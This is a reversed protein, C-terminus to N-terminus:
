PIVLVVGVSLRDPEGKLAQKNAEFVDYWRSADGYYVESISSLSDGNAIVHTRGRGAAAAATQPGPTRLVPIQLVMGPRLSRPNVGPNAELLRRWAEGDGLARRSISILTDGTRVTVTEPRVQRTSAAAGEIPPPTSARGSPTAVTAPGLLETLGPSLDVGMEIIANRVASPGGGTAAAGEVAAPTPAVPEVAPLAAVRTPTSAVTGVPIEPTAQALPSAAEVPAPGGGYFVILVVIAAAAALLVLKGGTSM